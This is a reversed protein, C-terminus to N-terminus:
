ASLSALGVKILVTFIFWGFVIGFATGRKVKPAICYIGIAVLILTWITIIDFSGLLARLIPSGSPDMFYAGNVALPNNIDFSDTSVGALISVSSLIARLLEPLRSYVILAFVTKFQVDANAVFKICGYMVGAFVAYIILAIVPVTYSIFKTISVQREIAQARKDPPLSELREAAKPQMQLQNDVVKQFGIKHDITYVFLFGVISIIIFPAWWAASRRLDTFTKSPAIFTDLLRQGESLPAPQQPDQPPVIAAAAMPQEKSNSMPMTIEIRSPSLSM